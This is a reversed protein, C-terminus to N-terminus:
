ERASKLPPLVRPERQPNNLHRTLSKQITTLDDVLDGYSLKYKAGSNQHSRAKEAMIKLYNIENVIQVLYRKEQETMSNNAHATSTLTSFLLLVALLTNKMIIM